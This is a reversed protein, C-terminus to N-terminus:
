IMKGGCAKELRNYVGRGYGREDVGQCVVVEYGDDDAKRLLAFLNKAYDKDDNGYCYSPLGDFFKLYKQSCVVVTKKGNQISNECFSRMRGGDNENKVAMYVEAKPSYHKYKMGPCLAVTSNKIVEIKGVIEEIKELETGGARLLRPTPTTFDIVTSEVGVSCEGGDIIATIKGSLDDYCH